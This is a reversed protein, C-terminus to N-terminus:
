GTLGRLLAWDETAWLGAVDATTLNRRASPEPDSTPPSTEFRSLLSEFGRPSLDPEIPYLGVGYNVRSRSPRKRRALRAILAPAITTMM